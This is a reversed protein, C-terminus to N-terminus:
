PLRLSYRHSGVAVRLDRPASGDNLLEVAISGDPNQCAIRDAYPGSSEVLRAGPDIL